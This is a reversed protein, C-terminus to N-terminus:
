MKIGKNKIHFETDHKPKVNTGISKQFKQYKHRFWNTDSVGDITLRLKGQETPHPKIEAVSNDTEFKRQYETSYLKGSFAVPKMKLIMKILSESFGLFRCLNEMRLLEKIYPFMDFIKKLEQKLKDIATEYEKQLVQINQKLDKVEQSLEQKEIKLNEIEQQQIKVKSSGIISGIGEILSSGVDAATNKLKETKLQGKVQKLAEQTEDLESEKQQITEQLSENKVYLERYYQGTTIHRAQSGEIGRQLGYVQMRRAYSDQYGKLKDRAM